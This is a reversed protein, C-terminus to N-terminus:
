NSNQPILTVTPVPTSLGNSTDNVSQSIAFLIIIVIVVIVGLIMWLQRPLGENNDTITSQKTPSISAHQIVWDRMLTGTFEVKGDRGTIMERYDLSRITANITMMDMPYDTDILWAEIVKPTLERIPNQRYLDGLATLVLRENQSLSRWIALIDDHHEEQIKLRIKQIDAITIAQSTNEWHVYIHYGFRNVLYPDGGTLTYILSPADPTIHPIMESFLQVVETKSLNHLRKVDTLQSLPALQPILDENDVPLTLAIGLQAGMLHHLYDFTDPPLKKDQVAHILHQVDDLLLAIRRQPRIVRYIDTLFVNKFWERLNDPNEQDAQNLNAIPNYGQAKVYYQVAQMLDMLWHTEDSFEVNELPIYIGIFHEDFFQDFHQLLATKGMRWRGLYVTAHTNAPDTLHQHLRALELARGVFIPLTADSDFPNIHTENPSEVSIPHEDM